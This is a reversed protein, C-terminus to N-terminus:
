PGWMGHEPDMPPGFRQLYARFAALDSTRLGLLGLANDQNQDGEWAGVFQKLMNPDLLRQFATSLLDKRSEGMAIDIPTDDPNMALGANDPGWLGRELDIPPDFGQLYARFAALDSAHLGLLGLAKNQDQEWLRTFEGQVEPDLLRQFAAALQEKSAGMEAAGARQEDQKSM